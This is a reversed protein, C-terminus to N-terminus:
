ELKQLNKELRNPMNFKKRPKLHKFCIQYAQIQTHEGLIPIEKSRKKISMTCFHEKRLQITIGAKGYKRNAKLIIM